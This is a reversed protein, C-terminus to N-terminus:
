ARKRLISALADVGAEIETAELDGFGMLLGSAKPVRFHLPLDPYVGVGEAASHEVFSLLDEVEVTPLTAHVHLGGPRPATQMLEPPQAGIADILCKRKTRLRRTVRRLLSELEGNEMFEAMVQMELRSTIHAEVELASTFAEVLSPPLVVYALAPEPSFLRTFAGVYIVRRDEDLGQLSEIPTGHYNYEYNHDYEIVWAQQERAWALLHLRRPLSLVAGTTAHHSPATCIGRTPAGARPLEDVLLGDEDAPVPVLECESGLFASRAGIYHPDELVVRDGPDTLLRAIMQFGQQASNLLLIQEAQCHVGRTTRLYRVLAMQLPNVRRRYVYPFTRAEFAAAHRRVIRYWARRSAADSVNTNYNFDWQVGSRDIGAFPSFRQSNQIQTLGRQSLRNVARRPPSGVRGKRQLAQRPLLQSVHTGGGRRGQVYGESELRRYATVATNRAVGLKQALTRTAPLREGVALDGRLIAERLFVYIQDGLPKTQDIPIIM